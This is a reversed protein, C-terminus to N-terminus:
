TSAGLNMRVYACVDTFGFKKMYVEARNTPTYADLFEFQNAKLWEIIPQWFAAKFRLLHKGAMVMVDAGKHGNIEFFQLCLLCAVKGEIFGAFMVAKDVQTAMLVHGADMEAQAIVNGECADEVMPELEAWLAVVREKSLMEITLDTM